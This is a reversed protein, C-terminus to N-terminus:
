YDSFCFLFDGSDKHSVLSGVANGLRNYMISLSTIHVKLFWVNVCLNNTCLDYYGYVGLQSYSYRGLYKKAQWIAIKVLTEQCMIVEGVVGIWSQLM